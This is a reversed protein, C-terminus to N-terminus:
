DGALFANLRNNIEIWSCGPKKKVKRDKMMNQIKVSDDWRGAASYINSLLVYPAVNQPDLEFLHEAVREGLEINAHIKCAGLLSVWVAVDAEIPMKDILDQAEILRGARGLLDVMCCYHDLGPTIQYYQRMCDFYQWGDDVLGAHCCASLVGIFTVHDPNTASHQMQEFLKLAEKGCGHMAYGVIMANWSVIDRTSMKDFVKHADKINGCKAYMDILANGVFVGTLFGSRIIDEHVEKGYGLAAMSACSSLICGFTDADPKVGTLRMERFFQMAEGFCENQAYGAIIATWSVVNREPMEQFLKLAEALYGYQVYGAVMATWSVVNREPMKEFLKLAEELHGNQAYGAIMATWSVVNREPMKCFLKMAGEVNQNQAYGAIMSNWSVANREPMQDFVKRANELAGCKAYMDVLTSGVFIDSQFGSRIIDEHFEKGQKLAALNATATLVSSFTFQNPQIGARQMQYFLALAEGAYGYKTYASIMVSWSVVNPKPMQDLVKRADLLSGCKTYMIVLNNWLFSDECQFWTHIIHAHVLKGEPLAKNNGCAQLLSAYTSNNPCDMLYLLIRVAEKLRGDKCVAKIDWTINSALFATISM